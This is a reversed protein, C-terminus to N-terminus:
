AQIAKMYKNRCGPWCQTDGGIAQWSPLPRKHHHCYLWHWLL